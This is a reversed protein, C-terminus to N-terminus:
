NNNKFENLYTDENVAKEAAGVRAEDRAKLIAKKVTSSGIHAGETFVIDVIRQGNVQIVPQLQEARDIYYKSLRDMSSNVGTGFGEKFKDANSPGQWANSAFPNIMMPNPKATNALGGVIGGLMSNTLYKTEKSVVNGRVGAKSDEGAIFGAVQTEIIEGTSIETCTLKELRAYVRESSLDGYGSALVHSDNLDSQFKRPLVGNNLLRLLMPRPDSSASMSTSADVGGIIMAKAFAGAPIWNEITKRQETEQNNLSSDVNFTIRQFSPAANVQNVNSNLSNKNEAVKNENNEKLSEVIWKLQEQVQTIKDDSEQSKTTIELLFTNIKELDNNNSAIAKDINLRWLDEPKIHSQQTEIKRSEESEIYKKAEIQKEDAQKSTLTTFLYIVSITLFVIIAGLIYQNKRIKNNGQSDSLKKINFIM